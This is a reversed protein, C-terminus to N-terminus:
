LHTTCAPTGTWVHHMKASGKRGSIALDVKRELIKELNDRNRLAHVFKLEPDRKGTSQSSFPTTAVSERDLEAQTEGHSLRRSVHGEGTERSGTHGFLFSVKSAEAKHSSRLAKSNPMGRASDSIMTVDDSCWDIPNHETNMYFSFDAFNPEYGTHPASDTLRGSVVWHGAPASSSFWQSRTCTQVTTASRSPSGSSSSM